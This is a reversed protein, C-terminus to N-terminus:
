APSDADAQTDIIERTVVTAYSGSQLYFTVKLVTLSPWEALLSRPRLALARREQSLGAAELGAALEACGRAATREIELAAGTTRLEGSGWLPGTPAIDGSACRAALEASVPEPGFISHTGSLMWVDGDLPRNWDGHEVRTALVANFLHSRAASLLMSREHRAVRRGAFMRLARAVNAGDRGFRQEGFYNPVGTAAVAAIISEAVAHAGSVERLTIEFFNGRHAGRKLKRNHRAAGLISFEPHQLQTWDPDSKGPLHLSFTQRTLAHRDKLGSYSVAAPAVGVFRALERAVWDTNAGRKEVRVFVHEGGGDPAFGLDEDVVFDEPATRLIGRLPPGGCAFPLPLPAAEAM